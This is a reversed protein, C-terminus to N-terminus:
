QRQNVPNIRLFALIRGFHDCFKVLCMIGRHRAFVYLIPILVAYLPAAVFSKVTNRLRGEPHRMSNKGRLLARSTMFRVSWRQPPVFECVEAENCWIFTQGARIMRRFFDQDEGGTGFESRFPSGAPGFIKRHLLVNGTRCEDWPLVFGTPHTPRQYFGGKIIWKPPSHDFHPNVPGLVGGVEHNEFTRFLNLLWGAMPFEDDDIFAVFDGTSHDIARNRVLAINREPEVAYVFVGPNQEAYREVIVRASQNADNDAVVVSFTFAGETEQLLVDRLLRDLMAPRNCTCICITIHPLM